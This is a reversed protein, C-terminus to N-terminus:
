FLEIMPRTSRAINEKMMDILLADLAYFVKDTLRNISINVGITRVSKTVNKFLYEVEDNSM